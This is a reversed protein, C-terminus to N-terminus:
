IPWGQPNLWYADREGYEKRYFTNLRQPTTYVRKLPFGHWRLRGCFTRRHESSLLALTGWRGRTMQRHLTWVGWRGSLSPACFQLHCGPQGEAKVYVCQDNLDGASYAQSLNNQDCQDTLTSWRPQPHYWEKPLLDQVAYSPCLSTVTNM